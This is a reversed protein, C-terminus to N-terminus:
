RPASGKRNSTYATLETPGSATGVGLGAPRVANLVTEFPVIRNAARISM